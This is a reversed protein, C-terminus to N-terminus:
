RQVRRPMKVVYTRAIKDHWGQNWRGWIMWLFGLLGLIALAVAVAGALLLVYEPIYGGSYDIIIWVVFALLPSIILLYLVPRGLLERLAARGMGPVMGAEGMVQIRVAMKGLTQGRTGTLVWFYAPAILWVLPSSYLIWPLNGWYFYRFSSGGHFIFLQLIVVVGIVAAADLLFAIFRLRFGAYEVATPAQFETVATPAPFEERLTPVPEAAGGRQTEGTEAEQVTEPTPLAAGCRGCFLGAPLNNHGCAACIRVQEAM